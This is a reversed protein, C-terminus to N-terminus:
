KRTPRATRASMSRPSSPLWTRHSLGERRHVLLVMRPQLTQHRDARPSYVTAASPTLRKRDARTGREFTLFEHRVIRCSSARGASLFLILLYGLHRGTQACGCRGPYVMSLVMGPACKRRKTRSRARFTKEDLGFLAGGKRTVVVEPGGTTAFELDGAPPATVRVGAKYVAELCQAKRM